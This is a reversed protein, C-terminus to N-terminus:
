FFIWIMVRQLIWQLLWIFGFAFLHAFSIPIMAGRTLRQSLPRFLSVIPETLFILVRRIPNEPRIFWSLIADAVFVWSYIQLVWLMAYMLRYSLSAM